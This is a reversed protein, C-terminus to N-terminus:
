VALEVAQRGSTSPQPKIGARLQGVETKQTAIRVAIRCRRHVLRCGPCALNERGPILVILVGGREFEDHCVDGFQGEPPMLHLQRGLLREGPAGGAHGADAFGEEQGGVPGHRSSPTSLSICAMLVTSAHFVVRAVGAGVPGGAADASLPDELGTFGRQLKRSFHRVAIAPGFRDAGVFAEVAATPVQGALGTWPSPDM